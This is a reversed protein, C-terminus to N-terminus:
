PFDLLHVQWIPILFTLSSELNPNPSHTFKGLKSWCLWAMLTFTDGYKDYQVCCMVDQVYSMVYQMYCMVNKMDNTWISPSRSDHVRCLFCGLFSPEVYPFKVLSGEKAFVYDAESMWKYKMENWEYALTFVM